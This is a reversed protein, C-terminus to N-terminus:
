EAIAFVMTVSASLDIMGASIPVDYQPSSAAMELMVPEARMPSYGGSGAESISVVDGVSVNAASAYLEALRLSEAVARRRAEDMAEAPDQLGFSVGDLRNAGDGVVAALLGGLDDLDRVAVEISNVAQYGSISRGSGLVSSSYRPNLRISGSQIDAPDIGQVDLRALVAATAASAQDLAEAAVDADTQVGIRVTAMDPAISVEGLGSVTIFRDEAFAPQAGFLALVAILPIFSSRM